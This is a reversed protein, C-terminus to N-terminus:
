KGAVVTVYLGNPATGSHVADVDVFLIDGTALDDYGTDIVGDAAFFEDGLTIKTGLVDNPTGARVRRIQVDTTGTVGKDTVAAVVSVINWGNLAAPVVIGKKGDAISVAGDSDAVVFHFLANMLAGAAAVNTADTVDAGAEIGSLKSKETDSYQKYTTGDGIDDQTADAGSTVLGKADYTIKTKSAGSIAANAAVKGDAYAKTAKASPITDDDTSVSSLDSDIALAAIAGGTIRGVVKQEAVTLAVPTNDTTAYLITNADFLAKAVKTDAYTKVAKQSPVKSDSNAALTGDTDIFGLDLIEAEVAAEVVDAAVFGCRIMENIVDFDTIEIQGAADASHVVGDGDIFQSQGSPFQLKM